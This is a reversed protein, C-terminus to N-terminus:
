VGTLRVARNYLQCCELAERPAGAEVVKLWYPRGTDDITLQAATKVRDRFLAREEGTADRLWPADAAEACGEAGLLILGAGDDTLM